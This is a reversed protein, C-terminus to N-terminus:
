FRGTYQRSTHQIAPCPGQGEQFAKDFEPFLDGMPQFTTNTNLGRRMRLDATFFNGGHWSLMQHDTFPGQAIGQVDIYYWAEGGYPILNAQQQQQQQVIQQRDEFTIQNDDNSTSISLNNNKKAARKSRQMKKKTTPKKSAINNNDANTIKSNM